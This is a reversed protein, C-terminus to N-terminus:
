ELFMYFWTSSVNAALQIDIHEVVYGSRECIGLALLIHASTIHFWDPSFGNKLRGAGREKKAIVTAALTSYECSLVIKSRDM